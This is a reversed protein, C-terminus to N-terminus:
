VSKKKKKKKEIKESNKGYEVKEMARGIPFLGDLFSGRGFDDDDDDDVFSPFLPLLLAALPPLVSKSGSSIAGASDLRFIM